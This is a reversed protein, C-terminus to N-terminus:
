LFPITSGTDPSTRAREHEHGSTGARTRSWSEGSWSERELVGWEVVAWELFEWELVGRELVGLAPNGAGPSVVRLNEAGHSAM